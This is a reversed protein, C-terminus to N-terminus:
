IRGPDAVWQWFRLFEETHEHWDTTFVPDIKGFLFNFYDDIFQLHHNVITLGELPVLAKMVYNDDFLAFFVDDCKECRDSLFATPEGCFCKKRHACGDCLYHGGSGCNTYDGPEIPRPAYDTCFDDDEGDPM